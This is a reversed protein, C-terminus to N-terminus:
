FVFQIFFKTVPWLNVSVRGINGSPHVLGGYSGVHRVLNWVLQMVM